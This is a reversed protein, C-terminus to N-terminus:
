ELQRRPRPHDLEAVHVCTADGYQNMGNQIKTDVCDQNNSNSNMYMSTSSLEGHCFM